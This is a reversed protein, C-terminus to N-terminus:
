LLVLLLVLVVIIAGASIYVGGGIDHMRHNISKVEKRLKRKESSKMKSMDMSKIESVRLEMSKVEEAEKTKTSPATTTVPEDTGSAKLQVPLITLSLCTM